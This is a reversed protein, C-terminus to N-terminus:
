EVVKGSFISHCVASFFLLHFHQGCIVVLNNRANREGGQAFMSFITSYINTQWTLGTNSSGWFIDEVHISKSVNENKKSIEKKCLNRSISIKNISKVKICYIWYMHFMIVIKDFIKKKEKSIWWNISITMFLISLYIWM